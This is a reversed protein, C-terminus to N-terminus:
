NWNSAVGEAPRREQSHGLSIGSPIALLEFDARADITNFPWHKHVAGVM